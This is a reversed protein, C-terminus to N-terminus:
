AQVYICWLLKPRKFFSGQDRILLNRKMSYGFMFSMSELHNQRKKLSLSTLAKIVTYIVTVKCTLKKIGKRKRLITKKKNLAILIILILFKLKRLLVFM